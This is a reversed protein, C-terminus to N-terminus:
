PDVVSFPVANSIGGGPAPTSVTVTFTRASALDSADLTTNVQTGGDSVFTRRPEGDLRIVSNAVFGSGNVALMYLPQGARVSADLLSTIAPAPARVELTLPNSFGGGPGPNGVRFSLTGSGAVDDRTLDVQMQTASAPHLSGRVDAGVYVVSGQAFRAGTLTVTVPNRTSTSTPSIATLLPLPNVVHLMTTNTSGGGSSQACAALGIVAAGAALAAGARKWQM